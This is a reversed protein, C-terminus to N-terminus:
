WNNHHCRLINGETTPLNKEVAVVWQPRLFSMQKLIMQKQVAVQHAAAGPAVARNSRCSFRSRDSMRVIGKKVILFTFLGLTDSQDNLIAFTM